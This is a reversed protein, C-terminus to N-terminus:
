RRPMGVPKDNECHPKFIRGVRRGWTFPEWTSDEPGGFFETVQRGAHDSRVRERLPGRPACFGDAVDKFINEALADASKPTTCGEVFVRAPEFSGWQSPFWEFNEPKATQALFEEMVYARYPMGSEGGRPRRPRELGCEQFAKDARAAFDQVGDAYTNRAQRAAKLNWEAIERQDM